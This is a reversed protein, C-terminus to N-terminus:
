TRRRGDEESLCQATADRGQAKGSSAREADSDHESEPSCFHNQPRVRGNLHQSRTWLSRQLGHTYHAKSEAHRTGGESLHDEVSMVSQRDEDMEDDTQPSIHEGESDDSSCNSHRDEDMEDDTPPSIHKGESDDSLRDDAMEDDIEPSIHEGELDDSLCDSQRDEDLEDIDTDILPHKHIPEKPLRCSQEDLYQDEDEEDDSITVWNQLRRRGGTLVQERHITSDAPTDSEEVSTDLYQNEDMDHDTEPPIVQSSATNGPNFSTRRRLVTIENSSPSSAYDDSNVVEVSGGRQNALGGGGKQNLVKRVNSSCSTSPNTLRAAVQGYSRKGFANVQPAEVVPPWHFCANQSSALCRPQTQSIFSPRRPM